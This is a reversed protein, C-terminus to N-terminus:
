LASATSFLPRLADMLPTTGYRVEGVGPEVDVLGGKNQADNAKILLEAASANISREFTEKWQSRPVAHANITRGLLQSVAAAVDNASYRCPGEAHVIKLRKETAPQLLLGAAILGLDQAAITPFAMGVPDHFSPLIGTAMAIPIVRGWNHMHEASRLILTHGDIQGLRAEFARFLTPMGIDDAVHAGYDSIALVREPHAQELAEGLSQITRRMDRATDEVQLSAPLIMQVASADGIAHALANADRLDAIAINCGIESLRAAKTADRVIARVPMGAKRLASATSYGVNGAAGVIAFM